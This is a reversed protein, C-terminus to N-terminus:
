QTVGPFLASKWKGINKETLDEIESQMLAAHRHVKDMAVITDQFSKLFERQDNNRDKESIVLVDNAQIQLLARKRHPSIKEQLATMEEIVASVLVRKKEELTPPPPTDDEVEFEINYDDGDKVIANMIDPHAVPPPYLHYKEPDKEHNKVQKDYARMEKIQENCLRQFSNEEDDTPLLSKLIKHAM